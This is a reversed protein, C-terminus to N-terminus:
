LQMMDAGVVLWYAAIVASRLQSSSTAAIRASYLALRRYTTFFSLSMPSEGTKIGLACKVDKWIYASASKRALSETGSKQALLMHGNHRAAREPAAALAIRSDAIGVTDIMQCFGHFSNSSEEFRVAPKVSSAAAFPVGSSPLSRKHGTLRAHSKVKSPTCTVKSMSHGNLPVTKM